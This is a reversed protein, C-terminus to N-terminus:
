TGQRGSVQSLIDGLHPSPHYPHCYGGGNLMEISITSASPLVGTEHM